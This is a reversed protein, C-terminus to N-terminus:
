REASRDRMTVKGAVAPADLLKHAVRQAHAAAEQAQRRGVEDEVVLIRAPSDTATAAQTM